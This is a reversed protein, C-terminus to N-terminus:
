HESHGGPNFNRSLHRVSQLNYTNQMKKLFRRIHTYVHMYQLLSYQGAKVGVDMNAAKRAGIGNKGIDYALRENYYIKIM